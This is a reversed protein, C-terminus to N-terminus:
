SETQEVTEPKVKGLKLTYIPIGKSDIVAAGDIRDLIAHISTRADALWGRVIPDAKEVGLLDM